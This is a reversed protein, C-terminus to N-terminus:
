PRAELGINWQRTPPCSSGAGAVLDRCQGDMEGAALPLGILAALTPAIDITEVGNPQEFGTIGKRWFLIPVRRDYDWPSGHTAIYTGGEAVEVPIPLYRPKLMVILDGSRDPDFSARAREALSWSEPPGSPSPMAALAVATMVEAIEPQAKLLAV